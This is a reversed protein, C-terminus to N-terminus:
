FHGFTAPRMLAFPGSSAPARGPEARIPEAGWRVTIQGPGTAARAYLRRGTGIADAGKIIKGSAPQRIFNFFKMRRGNARGILLLVAGGVGDLSQRRARGLKPGLRGSRVSGVPGSNIPRRFSSGGTMTAGGAGGTPGRPGDAPAGAPSDPGAGVKRGDSSYNM